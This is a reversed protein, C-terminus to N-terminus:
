PTTPGPRSTPREPPGSPPSRKRRPCRRGSTATIHRLICRKQGAAEILRNAPGPFERDELIGEHSRTASHLVHCRGARVVVHVAKAPRGLNEGRWASTSKTTPVILRYHAVKFKRLTFRKRM